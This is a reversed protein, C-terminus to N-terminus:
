TLRICNVAYGKTNCNLPVNTNNTNKTNFCNFGIMIEDDTSIGCQIVGDKIRNWQVISRDRPCRLGKFLTVTSCDYVREDEGHYCQEEGDCIWHPKLFEIRDKHIVCYSYRISFAEQKWQSTNQLPKVCLM